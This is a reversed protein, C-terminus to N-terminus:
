AAVKLDTVPDEVLARGVLDEVPASWAITSLMDCHAEAISLLRERTTPNTTARAQMRLAEATASLQAIEDTHAIWMSAIDCRLRLKTQSTDTAEVGVAMCGSCPSPPTELSAKLADDGLSPIAEIKGLGSATPDLGFAGAALLEDDDSSRVETAVEARKQEAIVIGIPLQMIGTADSRRQCRFGRIKRWAPMPGFRLENGFHAKAFPRTIPVDAM